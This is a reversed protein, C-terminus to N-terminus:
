QCGGKRELADGESRLDRAAVAVPPDVAHLGRRERAALCALRGNLTDFAIGGTCWPVGADDTTRRSLTMWADQAADWGDVRGRDVHITMGTTADFAAACGFTQVWSCHLGSFGIGPGRRWTGAVPDFTLVAQQGDWTMDAHAVFTAANPDYSFSTAYM